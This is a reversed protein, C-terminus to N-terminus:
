INHNTFGRTEMENQIKVVIGNLRGTNVATTDCIIMSICKWADFDNLLKKFLKLFIMPNEVKVNLLELNIKRKENQLIVVQYEAKYNIEM